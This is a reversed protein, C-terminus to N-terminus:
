IFTQLGAITNIVAVPIRNERCFVCRKGPSIIQIRIGIRKEYLALSDIGHKIGTGNFEIIFDTEYGTDLTYVSFRKKGYCFTIVADIIEAKPIVGDFHWLHIVGIDINIIDTQDSMLIPPDIADKARFAFLKDIAIFRKQTLYVWKKQGAYKALINRAKDM